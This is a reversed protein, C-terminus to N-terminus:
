VTLMTLKYNMRPRLRKQPRPVKGIANLPKTANIKKSDLHNRTLRGNRLVDLYDKGKTGYHSGQKVKRKTKHQETTLRFAHRKPGLTVHFQNTIKVAFSSM